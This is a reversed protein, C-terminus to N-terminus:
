LEFQEINWPLDVFGPDKHGSNSSYKPCHKGCLLLEM